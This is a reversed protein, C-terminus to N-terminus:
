EEEHQEEELKEYEKQLEYTIVGIRILLYIAGTLLIGVLIDM